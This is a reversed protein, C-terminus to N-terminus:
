TPPDYAHRKLVPPSVKEAVSIKKLEQLATKASQYRENFHYCVMKDIIDALEPQVSVLHRWLINGTESDQRLQCPPIGTLGQIGIMGLSYIDSSLRPHGALQEPAAYGKTGIAVTFDDENLDTHASMQKVAGFDILCLQEDQERRIINSPKIDRHIVQRDHIFAIVELIEVLLYVIQSEPLRRDLPIEQAIPHGQIFEEVLYFERDEEFYAFLQPIRDHKGLIELIEAETHFLRRAIQFFREDTRAPMLHKIVCEPHGPRQTDEALYTHGFGGAGLLNLIQYRGALLNQSTLIEPCSPVISVLENPLETTAIASDFEETVEELMTHLLAIHHQQEQVRSAIKQQEQQMQYSSYALITSGTGILSLAPAILPVWGAQLFLGWSVGFLAFTAVVGAGVLMLPHKIKWALCGGVLSWGWIWLWEVGESWTWLLSRKDLVVSLLQSLIQAHVVVGPMKHLERERPSYPTYFADDISPATVGILILRDRIWEPEIKDELVQSLTVQRAVQRPSHYNLLIQYGEADVDQYSGTNNQLRPFLVSGIQLEDAETFKIDIDKANFYRRALQFSFSFPTQCSSETPPQGILLARRIIGDSDIVFDSYGLREIPIEPPSAVGIDKNGESLKCIAITRDSQKLHSILAERGPLQPVDRYIDLGIARPQYQELKQLLQYITEDSLPWRGVAQIDTETVAVILLRPDPEAPTRWQMLQDYTGLEPAQLVKLQRGAFVLLTVAVSAILVPQRWFSIAPFGKSSHRLKPLLGRIKQSFQAIEM